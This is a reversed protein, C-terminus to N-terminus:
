VSGQRLRDTMNILAANECLLSSHEGYKRTIVWWVWALSSISPNIYSLSLEMALANSFTKRQVLDDMYPTDNNNGGEICHFRYSLAKIKKLGITQGIYQACLMVIYRSMDVADYQSQWFRSACGSGGSGISVNIISTLSVSDLWEVNNERYTM